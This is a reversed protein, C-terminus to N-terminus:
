GAHGIIPDALVTVIIFRIVHEYVGPPFTRDLVSQGM